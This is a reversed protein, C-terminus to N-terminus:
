KGEEEEEAPVFAFEPLPPLAAVLKLTELSVTIVQKVLRVIYQEDDVRNPDSTTGSRANTSVQYQDILWELASRNGLRYNFCESPVGRLTLSDNYIVANNDPTLRMKSVRWSYPESEEHQLPYPQAQEYGLHIHILQGGIQCFTLFSTRDSLLPIRPLEQKLNKAYRERYHSHHLMAYVYHFIDRKTVGEGYQAQFQKLAWETINEERYGGDPTYTYFPFCQFGDTSALLHLDPIFNTALVSFPSRYGHDSMAILINEKESAPTPFFTNFLGYADNLL